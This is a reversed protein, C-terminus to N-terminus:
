FVAIGKCLVTECVHHRWLARYVDIGVYVEFEYFYEISSAHWLSARAVAAVAPQRSARAVAFGAIFLSKM